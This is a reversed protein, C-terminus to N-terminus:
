QAGAIRALFAARESTGKGYLKDAIMCTVSTLTRMEASNPGHMDTHYEVQVQLVAVVAELTTDVVPAPIERPRVGSSYVWRRADTDMDRDHPLKDGAYLEVMRDSDPRIVVYPANDYTVLTGRTLDKNEM